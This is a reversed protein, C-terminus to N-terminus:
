ALFTASNQVLEFNLNGHIDLFDSIIDQFVNVVDVYVQVIDHIVNEM